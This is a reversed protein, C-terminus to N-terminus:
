LLVVKKTTTTNDSFTITWTDTNLNQTNSESVDSIYGPQGSTSATIVGESSVSINPANIYGSSVSKSTQSAYFGAPVTVSAGSATLDSASKTPITGIKEEGDAGVFIKPALVDGAEATVGSVDAGTSIAEIKVPVENLTNAAAQGKKVLGANIRGLSASLANKVANISEILM